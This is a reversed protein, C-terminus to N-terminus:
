KDAEDKKSEELYDLQTKARVIAPDDEGLLDSLKKYETKSNELEEDEIMNFLISLAKAVKKNRREVGMMEYLITSIDKGYYKPTIKVIEGDEMIQVESKEPNANSLLQPSHTTILFQSM